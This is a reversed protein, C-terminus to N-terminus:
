GKKSKLSEIALELTGNLALKMHSTNRVWLSGYEWVNNSICENGGFLLYSLAIKRWLPEKYIPSILNASVLQDLEMDLVSLRQKYNFVFQEINSLSRLLKTTDEVSVVEINDVYNEFNRFSFGQNMEFDTVLNQDEIYRRARRDFFYTSHCWHLEGNWTLGINSKAASCSTNRLLDRKQLRKVNESVLDTSKKVRSTIQHEFDMNFNKNSFNSQFAPDYLTKTIDRLIYGEEQTFKGPYVFTLFEGGVPYKPYLKSWDSYMDYFYKYHKYFNDGDALYKISESGHTGKFHIYYYDKVIGLSNLSELVYDINNKIENASSGIRNADNVEPTGDISIQVSAIIKNDRDKNLDNICKILDVTNQALKRTSLNTSYHLEKFDPFRKAIFPLREVLYPLNISPEGGWLSLSTIDSGIIREIDDEMRGSVIWDVINDNVDQMHGSIKPQFCYTCELNCVASFYLNVAKFGYESLKKM